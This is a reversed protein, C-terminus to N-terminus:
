FSLNTTAFQTHGIKLVGFLLKPFCLKKLRVLQRIQVISLKSYLAKFKCYTNARQAM